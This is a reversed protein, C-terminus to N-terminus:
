PVGLHYFEDDIVGSLAHTMIRKAEAHKRQLAKSPMLGLKCIRLRIMALLRRL